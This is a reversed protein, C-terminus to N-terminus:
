SKTGNISIPENAKRAQAILEAHSPGRPKAPVGADAKGAAPQQGAAQTSKGKLSQSERLPPKYNPERKATAGGNLWAAAQQMLWDLLEIYLCSVQDGFTKAEVHM